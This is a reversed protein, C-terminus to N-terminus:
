GGGDDLAFADLHEFLGQDLHGIIQDLSCGRPCQSLDTRV